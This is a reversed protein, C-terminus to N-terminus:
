RITAPIRGQKVLQEFLMPATRAMTAVAASGFKTTQKHVKWWNEGTMIAFVSSSHIGFKRSADSVCGEWALIERVQNETIKSASHKEGHPIRGKMWADHSNDAATGVFLHEPNVCNRVDCKRCAFKDGLEIGKIMLSARHAGLTKGQYTLIGYGLPNIAGTWLWCGSDKDVRYSVSFYQELEQLNNIRM